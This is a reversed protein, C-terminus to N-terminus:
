RNECDWAGGIAGAEDVGIRTYSFRRSVSPSGSNAFPIAIKNWASRLRGEPKNAGQQPTRRTSISDYRIEFFRLIKSKHKYNRLKEVVDNFRRLSGSHPARAADPEAPAFRPVMSSSNSARRLALEQSDESDHAEELRDVEAIRYIRTATQPRERRIRPRKTDFLVINCIGDPL